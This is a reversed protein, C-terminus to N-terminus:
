LGSVGAEGSANVLIDGYAALWERLREHEQVDFQRMARVAAMLPGDKALRVAEQKRQERYQKQYVRIAQRRAGARYADMREIHPVKTASGSKDYRAMAPSNERTSRYQTPMPVQVYVCMQMKPSGCKPCDVANVAAVRERSMLPQRRNGRRPPPEAPGYTLFSM